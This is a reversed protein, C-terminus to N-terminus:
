AGRKQETAPKVVSQITKVLTQSSFPKPLFASVLARDRDGTARDEEKGSFLIIKVDPMFSKVRRALEYGNIGPMNIDTIVVDVPNQKLKALAEEGGAATVVKFGQEGLLEALVACVNEEDEVLLM